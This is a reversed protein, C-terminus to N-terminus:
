YKGSGINYLSSQLASTEAAGFSSKSLISFAQNYQYDVNTKGEKLYLDENVNIGVQVSDIDFDSKITEFNYRFLSGEENVYDQSKYYIVVSASDQSQIPYNLKLDLIISDSLTQQLYSISAYQQKYGDESFYKQVINIIRINNGPIELRIGDLADQKINKFNLLGIVSAEGEQDFVVSYYHSNDAVAGSYPPIRAIESAFVVPFLLIFIIILLLIKNNM